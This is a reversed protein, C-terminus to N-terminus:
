GPLCDTDAPLAASAARDLDPLLALEAIEVIRDLEAGAVDLDRQALQAPERAVPGRLFEVELAGDIRRRAVRPQEIEAEDGLPM